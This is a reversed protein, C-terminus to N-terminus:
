QLGRCLLSPCGRLAKGCGTSGNVLAQWSHSSYRDEADVCWHILSARSVAGNPVMVDASNRPKKSTKRWSNLTVKM